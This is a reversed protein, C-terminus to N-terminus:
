KKEDRITWLYLTHERHPGKFEVIQDPKLNPFPYDHAVLRTGPKLKMVQPELKEMFEPLMYFTVVSAKDLDKVKLADGLRFEAQEKTVGYKKMTEQCDKFRAPDIDVGVGRAGFRKAAICVIRGDGCGLDYVVDSKAQLTKLLAVVSPAAYESKGALVEAMTVHPIGKTAESNIKDIAKNVGALADSLEKQQQPTLGAVRAGFVEKFALPPITKKKKEANALDIVRNISRVVDMMDKNVAAMDLMKEVVEEETPVYIIRCTVKEEGGTAFPLTALLVAIGGFIARLSSM